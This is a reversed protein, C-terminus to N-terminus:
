VADLLLAISLCMANSKFSLRIWYIDFVTMSNAANEEKRLKYSGISKKHLAKQASEAAVKLPSCYVRIITSYM